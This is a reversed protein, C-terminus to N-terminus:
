DIVVNPLYIPVDIAITATFPLPLRCPIIRAGFMVGSLYPCLAVMRHRLMDHSQALSKHISQPRPQNRLCYSLSDRSKRKDRYARIQGTARPGTYACPRNTVVLVMVVIRKAAALTAQDTCGSFIKKRFFV